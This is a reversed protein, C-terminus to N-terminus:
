KRGSSDGEEIKAALPDMIFDEKMLPTTGIATFDVTGGAPIYKISDGVSGVKQGKPANGWGKGHLDYSVRVNRVAEKRPNCIKGRVEYGRGSRWLDQKVIELAAPEGGFMKPIVVAAAAACVIM